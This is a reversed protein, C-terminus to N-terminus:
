RRPVSSPPPQRPATPPQREPTRFVSLLLGVVLLVYSPITVILATLPLVLGMALGGFIESQPLKAETMWIFSFSSVMGKLLVIVAILWPLPLVVLCSAIMGPRRYRIVVVLAGVFMAVGLLVVLLGPLGLSEMLFIALPKPTRPSTQALLGPMQAAANSAAGLMAFSVLIALTERLQRM